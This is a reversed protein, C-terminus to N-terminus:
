VKKAHSNVSCQLSSIRRNLCAYSTSDQALSPGCQWPVGISRSTGHWLRRSCSPMKAKACQHQFALQQAHTCSTDQLASAPATTTPPQVGQVLALLPHHLLSVADKLTASVLITQRGGAVKKGCHQTLRAMDEEFHYELLQDVQLAVCTGYLVIYSGVVFVSCTRFSHRALAPDGYKGLHVPQAITSAQRSHPHLAGHLSCLHAWM